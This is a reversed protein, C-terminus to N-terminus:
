NVSNDGGGNSEPNAVPLEQVLQYFYPRFGMECLISNFSLMYPNISRTSSLHSLPTSIPDSSISLVHKSVQIDDCEQTIPLLNAGFIVM